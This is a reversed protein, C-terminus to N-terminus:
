RENADRRCEMKYDGMGSHYAERNEAIEQEIQEIVSDPLLGPDVSMKIGDALIAQAFTLNWGAALGNEEPSYEASIEVPCNWGEPTITVEHSSM